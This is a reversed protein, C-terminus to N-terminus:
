ISCLKDGRIKRKINYIKGEIYGAMENRLRLLKGIGMINVLISAILNDIYYTIAM